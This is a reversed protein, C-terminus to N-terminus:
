LLKIIALAVTISLSVSAFLTFSSPLFSLASVLTDVFSPLSLVVWIVGSVINYLLQALSLLFNGISSLVGLM